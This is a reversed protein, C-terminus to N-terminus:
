GNASEELAALRRELEDIETIRAVQGLAGVLQAAVDAPIEGAAASDVLRRSVGALGEAGDLDVHIPAPQPKLSPSIRDLVLKAATMDGDLAAKVIREVVETGHEALQRRLETTASKPRGNPNGSTGPKFRGDPLRETM